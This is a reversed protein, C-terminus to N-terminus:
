NIFDLFINDEFQEIIALHWKGRKWWIKWSRTPEGKAVEIWPEDESAKLGQEETYNKKM